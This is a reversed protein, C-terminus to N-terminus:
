SQLLIVLLKWKPHVKITKTQVITKDIAVAQRIHQLKRVTTIVVVLRYTCLTDANFRTYPHEMHSLVSKWERVKSYTMCCSFM